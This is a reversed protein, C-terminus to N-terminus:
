NEKGMFRLYVLTFVATLLTIFYSIASAYGINFNRFAQEYAFVNLVMTGYQPGGQTLVWILDFIRLTWMTEVVLCVLIVPRIGPVIVHYFVGLTGAGDTRAAECLDKMTSQMAALLLLAVYPMSKWIDALLVVGMASNPEALWAKYTDIWGLRVLIENIIGYDGNFMWKWMLGNVVYSLAWPLLFLRKFLASGWAGFYIISAVGFSFLLTLIVKAVTFVVTKTMVKTFHPDKFLQIYNDLGAFTYHISGQVFGVKVLSLFLAYVMPVAILLLLLLFTPALYLYATFSDSRHDIWDFLRLGSRPTRVIRDNAGTARTSSKIM